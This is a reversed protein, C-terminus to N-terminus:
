KASNRNGLFLLQSNWLETNPYLACRIGASADEIFKRM